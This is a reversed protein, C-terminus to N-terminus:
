QRLANFSFVSFLDLLALALELFCAGACLSPNTSSSSDIFLTAFNCVFLIKIRQAQIASTRKSRAQLQQQPATSAVYGVTQRLSTTDTYASHASRNAKCRHVFRSAAHSQSFSM